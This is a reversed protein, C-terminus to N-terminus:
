VAEPSWQNLDPQIDSTGNSLRNAIFAVETRNKAKLKKMINRVHVKVTSECMNLEYAITKNSKGIRLKEVVAAQRATFVGRTPEAGGPLKEHQRAAILSNAPIFVGGALVLHLAQAVVDLSLATPIYGKAGKKLATVILAPDDADCLLIFPLKNPTPPKAELMEELQAEVSRGEVSLLIVGGKCQDSAKLWESLSAFSAIQGPFSKQLGCAICERVFPRQEIFIIDRDVAVASASSPQTEPTTHTTQTALDGAGDSKRGASSRLTIIGAQNSDHM